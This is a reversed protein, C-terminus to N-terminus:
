TDEPGVSLCGSGEPFGETWASSSSVGRGKGGRDKGLYPGSEEHHAKSLGSTSIDWLRGIVSSESGLDGEGTSGEIGKKSISDLGKQSSRINWLLFALGDGGGDGFSDGLRSGRLSTGCTGM